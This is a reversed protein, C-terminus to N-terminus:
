VALQPYWVALSNAFAALRDIRGSGVHIPVRYWADGPGLPLLQLHMDKHPILSSMPDPWFAVLLYLARFQLGVKYAEPATSAAQGTAQGGIHPWCGTQYYATPQVYPGQMAFVAVKPAVVGGDGCLTQLHQVPVPCKLPSTSAHLYATKAAWRGILLTEPETLSDIAREQDILGCLIPKTAGELRSM